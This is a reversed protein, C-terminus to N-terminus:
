RLTPLCLPSVALAFNQQLAMICPMNRSGELQRKRDLQDHAVLIWFLTRQITPLIWLSRHRGHLTGQITGRQLQLPPVTPVAPIDITQNGPIAQDRKLPTELPQFDQNHFLVDRAREKRTRTEAETRTSIVAQVRKQHSPAFEVRGFATMVKQFAQREENEKPGGRVIKKLGCNQNRHKSTVLYHEETEKRNM